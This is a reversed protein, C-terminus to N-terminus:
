ASGSAASRWCSRRRPRWTIRRCDPPWALTQEEAFGETPFEVHYKGTADTTGHLIRGDPLDVEIPRSALPAGYQYRAVM